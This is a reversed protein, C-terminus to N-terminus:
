SKPASGPIRQRVSAVKVGQREFNFGEFRSVLHTLRLADLRM